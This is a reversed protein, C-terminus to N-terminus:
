CCCGADITDSLLLLTLAPAVVYRRNPLAEGEVCVCVCVKGVWGCQEKAACVLVCGLWM